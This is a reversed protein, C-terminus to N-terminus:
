LKEELTQLVRELDTQLALLEDIAPSTQSFDAADTTDFFRKVVERTRATRGGDGNDGLVALV